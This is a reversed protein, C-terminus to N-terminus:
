LKSGHFSMYLQQQWVRPDSGEYDRLASSERQIAKVDNYPLLLLHTATEARVTFAVPEDNLSEREGFTQGECLTYPHASHVRVRGSAIFYIATPLSGRASIIEGARFVKAFLPTNRKDKLREIEDLIVSDAPWVLRAAAPSVAALSKRKYSVSTVDISTMCYRYNIMMGLASILASPTTDAMFNIQEVQAGNQLHFNAVPDLIKDQRREFLIYRACAATIIDRINDVLEADRHWAPDSLKKLLWKHLVLQNVGYKMNLRQAQESNFFSRQLPESRQLKPDKNQLVNKADSTTQSQQDGSALAAKFWRAFGPVPSLTAATKCQPFMSSMRQITLFLLHSAINLGRLGTNSTSVSYFIIHSPNKVVPTEEELIPTINSCLHDTVVTQVFVLPAHPMHMHFLGFCYRQRGGLRRQLDGWGRVQHVREHKLVFAALDESSLDIRRFRMSGQTAFLDRMILDLLGLAEVSSKPLHDRHRAILIGLDVRLNLLFLPGPQITGVLLFFQEALPVLGRKVSKSINPDNKRSFGLAAAAVNLVLGSRKISPLTRMMVALDRVGLDVALALVLELRQSETFKKYDECLQLAFERRRKLGIVFGDSVDADLFEQIQSTFEARNFRVTEVTTFGGDPANRRAREADRAELHKRVWEDEGCFAPQSETPAMAVSAHVQQTTM